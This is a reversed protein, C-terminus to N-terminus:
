WTRILVETVKGRGAANSNISRAASVIGVNLGRYMAHVPAVDSNSLVARVGLKKLKHALDGLRQQDISDFGLETYATFSGKKVPWYPPDLYAADVKPSIESLAAEFDQCTIEVGQLAASVATLNPTDCITPNKYRGFPANFRGSRNVRYLGNFCTKNLYIMRAAIPTADDADLEMARVNYFYSEPNARGKHQSDLRQLYRLVEELNDRIATYTTILEANVDSIKATKFRGLTALRFFLAGAGVMPEYYKDISKPLLKLIQPALARKGGAWKLFPKAM